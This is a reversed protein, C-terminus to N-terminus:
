MLTCSPVVKDGDRFNGPVTRRSAAHYFLGRGDPKGDGIEGQYWNGNKWTAKGSGEARDDRWDGEYTGEYKDRLLGKGERKDNRWDGKYYTGGYREGDIWNMEGKGHRQGMIWEGNYRSGDWYTMLGRGHQLNDKWDGQYINGNKWTMKGVGERKNDWNGEYVGGDRYTVTANGGVIDSVQAIQTSAEALPQGASGQSIGATAVPEAIRAPQVDVVVGDGKDRGQAGPSGTAGGRAYHAPPDMYKEQCWLAVSVCTATCVAMLPMICIALGQNIAHQESASM